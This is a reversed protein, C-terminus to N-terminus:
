NNGFGSYDLAFNNFLPSHVTTTVSSMDIPLKIRIVEGKELHNELSFPLMIKTFYKLNQWDISLDEIFIHGNQCFNIFALTILISFISKM